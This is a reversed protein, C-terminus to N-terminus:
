KVYNLCAKDGFLKTAADNYAIAAERETKFCGIYKNIKVGNIRQSVRASYCVESLKAVGKYHSEKKSVPNNELIELFVDRKRKLNIKCDAYLYNYIKRAVNSYVGCLKIEWVNKDPSHKSKVLKVMPIECKQILIDLFDRCFEQTSIISFHWKPNDHGKHKFRQISGDGDFYGLMFSNVFEVPVQEITPFKLTLSKREEIRLTNLQATLNKTTCSIRFYGRDDITKNTTEIQDKFADILEKDKLCIQLVNKHLNGDAYILGLIYAKEHTDIRNFYTENFM